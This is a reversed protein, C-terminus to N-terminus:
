MCSYANMIPTWLDYISHLSAQIQEQGTKSGSQFASVEKDKQDCSSAWSSIIARTSVPCSRVQQRHYPMQFVITQENDGQRMRQNDTPINKDEQGNINGCIGLAKRGNHKVWIYLIFVSTRLPEHGESGWSCSIMGSEQRGKQKREQQSEHQWVSRDPSWPSM